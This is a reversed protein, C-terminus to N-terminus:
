ILHLKITEKGFNDVFLSTCLTLPNVELRYTMLEIRAPSNKLKVMGFCKFRM